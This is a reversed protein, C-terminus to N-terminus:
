EIEFENILLEYANGEDDGLYYEVEPISKELAMKAKEKSSYVGLIQDCGDVDPYFHHEILVYVKM